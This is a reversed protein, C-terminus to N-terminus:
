PCWPDPCHECAVTYPPDVFTMGGDFESCYGNSRRRDVSQGYLTGSAPICWDNFKQVFSQNGYISNYDPTVGGTDSGIVQNTYDWVNGSLIVSSMTGAENAPQDQEFDGCCRHSDGIQIPSFNFHAGWRNDAIIIGSFNKPHYFSTATESDDYRGIIM